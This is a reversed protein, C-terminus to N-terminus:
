VAGDRNLPHNYAKVCKWILSDMTDGYKAIKMLNDYTEDSIRVITYPLRISKIKPYLREIEPYSVKPESNEHCKKCLTLINDPDDSGGYKLPIIHHIELKEGQGCGLCRNDDRRFIEKRDPAGNRM